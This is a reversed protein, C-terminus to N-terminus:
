EEYLEPFREQFVRQAVERVEEEMKEYRSLLQSGKETLFSAGGSKGGHQRKIVRYGLQEEARNIITWGKTYSMNMQRCAEKMSGTYQLLNLLQATGPGFIQQEKMIKVSVAVNYLQRNREELLEENELAEGARLLIGQDEVEILTKEQSIERMAGALGRPGEYTLLEPILSTNLLVPHGKQGRCVPIGMDAEAEMLQRLTRVSVMPIDVPTYIVQECLPKIYELGLKVGDFTQANEYEKLFICIVGMKSVAKELEKARYGTVLVIPACGAQRLALILRQVASLSGIEILPKFEGRYFAARAATVVAGTRIKKEM